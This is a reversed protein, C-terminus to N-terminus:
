QKVVNLHTARRKARPQYAVGRRTVYYTGTETEYAVVAPLKKGQEAAVVVGGAKRLAREARDRMETYHGGYTQAKGRLNSNSWPVEQRLVSVAYESRNGNKALIALATDITRALLKSAM